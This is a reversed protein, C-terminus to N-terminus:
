NNRRSLSDYIDPLYTSPQDYILGSANDDYPRENQNGGRSVYSLQSGPRTRQTNTYQGYGSGQLDANSSTRSDAGHMQNVYSMDNANHIADKLSNAGWHPPVSATGSYSEKPPRGVFSPGQDRHSYPISLSNLEREIAGLLNSAFQYLQSYFENGKSLGLTYKKWNNQYFTMIKQNQENLITALFASSQQISKVKANNSLEHWMAKTTESLKQQEEILEDLRKSYKEFKKLEQPFIVSKIEAVTKVKSNLLLIDSIDDKHIDEKLTAVLATKEAKVKNLENMTDELRRIKNDITDALKTLQDDDIDLLSLETEISIESTSGPKKVTFYERFSRSDVGSALIKYIASNDGEVLGLLSSDSTTADYLTKKVKILDDRFRAQQLSSPASALLSEANRIKDLIRNRHDIIAAKNQQDKRCSTSIAEAAQLSQPDLGLDSNSAGLVESTKLLEKITVLAQPLNLYEMMSALEENSVEVADLENRLFQSKEESYFSLLEHINIPVVNKLFNEYNYDNIKAFYPIENMRIIKVSDMPKLDALLSLSPVLDHYVLDNDNNLEKIKIELADKHYKLNDLLDYINETRAKTIVKIVAPLIEKALDQAKMLYAIAQGYKATKELNLGQFYYLLSEYYLSKFRFNAIWFPEINAFVQDQADDSAELNYENFEDDEDLGLVEPELGVETISFNQSFNPAGESTILHSTSGYCLAFHKATSLALKSVLSNKKQELDGDVVKLTFIEQAQALCLKLIFGCTSSRLDNSPGNAFNESIFLFVGAAQQLLQVAEKFSAEADTSKKFSVSYKEAATRMLAAGTNFLVSAKEFALSHQSQKSEPDFADSWTFTVPKKKSLLFIPVRLDILELQSFYLFHLKIGTDGTLVKLEERTKNFEALEEQYGSTEGYISLLYKNLPKTWDIRDAEKSPAALVITKM